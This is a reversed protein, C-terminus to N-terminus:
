HDTETHNRDLNKSSKKKFISKFAQWLGKHHAVTTNNGNTIATSHTGDPNVITTLDGNTIVTSHTADPNVVTSVNGNNVVVTHTGDPNVVVTHQAYASLGVFSLLCILARKIMATTTMELKKSYQHINKIIYDYISVMRSLVFLTFSSSVIKVCWGYPYPCSIM